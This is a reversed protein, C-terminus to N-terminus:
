RCGGELLSRVFEGAREAASDPPGSTIADIIASGVVAGDAYSSIERVHEPTSVGFGVAVPLDTYGRVREVLRRVRGSVDARVGTVGLVSVCYVFGSARRCAAEIRRDTSTLAVLPTLGMGAREAADALPGCEEVPLDPTILGDVGASAAEECYRGLGMSLIPNYYGMLVLPTEVGLARVRRAAEICGAPTAGATLADHSSKQITPGEALPDSFPVGLEIM